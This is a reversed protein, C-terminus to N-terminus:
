RLMLGADGMLAQKLRAKPWEKDPVPVGTAGSLADQIFPKDLM